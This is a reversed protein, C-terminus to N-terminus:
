LKYAERATEDVVGICKGDREIPSINKPKHYEIADACKSCIGGYRELEKRRVSRSCEPSLNNLDVTNTM